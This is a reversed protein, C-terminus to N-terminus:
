PVDHYDNPLPDSAPFRTTEGEASEKIESNNYILADSASGTSGLDVWIFKHDADVFAM